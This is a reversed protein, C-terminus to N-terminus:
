RARAVALRVVDAHLEDLLGLIRDDATEPKRGIGGLMQVCPWCVITPGDGVILHSVGRCTRCRNVAQGHPRPPGHGKRGHRRRHSRHPLRRRVAGRGRLRRLGICGTIRSPLTQAGPTMGFEGADLRLYREGCAPMLVRVGVAILVVSALVLFLM